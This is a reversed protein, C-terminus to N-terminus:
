SESAEAKGVVEMTRLRFSQTERLARTAKYLENDLASQYRSLKENHQPIAASDRVLQGATDLKADMSLKAYMQNLLEALTTVKCLRMLAEVSEAEHRLRWIQLYDHTAPMEKALAVLDAPWTSVEAIEALADRGYESLLHDGALV